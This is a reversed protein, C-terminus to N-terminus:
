YIIQRQFRPKKSEGGGGNWELQKRLLWHLPPLVTSLNPLFKWFRDELFRLQSADTTSADM